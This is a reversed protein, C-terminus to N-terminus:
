PAHVIDPPPAPRHAPRPPRAAVPASPIPFPPPPSSGGLSTAALEWAAPLPDPRWLPQPALPKLSLRPNQQPGTDLTSNIRGTLGSGVWAAYAFRFKAAGCRVKQLLPYLKLTYDPVHPSPPRACCFSFFHLATPGMALSSFAIHSTGLPQLSFANKKKKCGTRGWSVRGGGPGEGLTRSTGAPLDGDELERGSPDSGVADAGESGLFYVIGMYFLVSSSLSPGSRESCKLEGSSSAKAAQLFADKLSTCFVENKTNRSFKSMPPSQGKILEKSAKSSFSSMEMPVASTQNM